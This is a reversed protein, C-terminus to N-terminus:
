NFRAQAGIAVTSLEGGCDVAAMRPAGRAVLDREEIAGADAKLVKGDCGRQGKERNRAAHGDLDIELRCGCAFM